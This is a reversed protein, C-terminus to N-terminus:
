TQLTRMRSTGKSHGEAAPQQFLLDQWAGEVRQQPVWWGEAQRHSGGTMLSGERAGEVKLGARYAGGAEEWGPSILKYKAWPPLEM